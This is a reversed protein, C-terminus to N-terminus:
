GVSYNILLGIDEFERAFLRVVDAGDIEVTKRLPEPLTAIAAPTIHLQWVEEETVDGMVHEYTASPV